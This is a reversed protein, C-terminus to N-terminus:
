DYLCLFKEGDKDFGQIKVRYDEVNKNPDQMINLLDQELNKLERVGIRKEESM